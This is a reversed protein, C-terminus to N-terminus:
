KIPEKNEVLLNGEVISRLWQKVEVINEAEEVPISMGKSSFVGLIYEAIKPHSNM